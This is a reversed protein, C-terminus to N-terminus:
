NAASLPFGRCGMHPCLSLCPLRTRPLPILCRQRNARSRHCKTELSTLQALTKGGIDMVISPLCFLPILPFHYDTQKCNTFFSTCIASVRYAILNYIKVHARIYTLIYTYAFSVTWLNVERFYVCHNLLPFINCSVSTIECSTPIELLYLYPLNVFVRM